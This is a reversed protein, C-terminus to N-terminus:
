AHPVENSKMNSELWALAGRDVCTNSGRHHRLLARAPGLQCCATTASAGQQLVCWCGGLALGASGPPVCKACPRVDASCAYRVVVAPLGSTLAQLPTSTPEAPTRLLGLSRAYHVARVAAPLPGTSSLGGGGGGGSGGGGPQSRSSLAHTRTAALQRMRRPPAGSWALALNQRLTAMLRHQAATAPQGGQLKALGVLTHLLSVNADLLAQRGALSSSSSVAAAKEKPLAEARRAAGSHCPPPSHPPTLPAAQATQQVRADVQM